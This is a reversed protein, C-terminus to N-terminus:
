PDFASFKYAFLHFKLTKWKLLAIETGQGIWETEPFIPLFGLKDQKRSLPNHIINKKKKLNREM